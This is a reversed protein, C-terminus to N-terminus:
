RREGSAPRSLAAVAALVSRAEPGQLPVALAAYLGASLVALAAVELTPVLLGDLRLRVLHIGVGMLVSAGVTQAFARLAAALERGKVASPLAALLLACRAAEAVSDALAVGVHALPRILVATLVIKVAVRVLALGAPTRTDRLSLYTRNLIRALAHFPFGLAYFALAQSTVASAEAGFAGRQYVAGVILEATAAVVVTVPVTVFFVVRVYGFLQRSLAPFNREAALRAFHPFTSQQLASVVLENPIAVLRQAFALASLSGASLWSAFMRDLVRALDTGGKSLLLPASLWGMERMRPHGLDLRFVYLKRKRWLLPLQLCLEVAAGLVAAVALARVGLVSALALLGLVTVLNNAAGMAGPVFFREYSFYLQALIGAIGAFVVSAMAIRTLSAALDRTSGDFGPAVIGVLSPAVLAGVAAVGVFVVALGNLLVSAGHWAEAEGARALDGRFLPIVIQRAPLLLWILLLGAVTMAVFYADTAETTGFLAAMLVQKVLGLGQAALQLVLLLAAARAIRDRAPSM